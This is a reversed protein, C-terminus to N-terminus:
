ASAPRYTKKRLPFARSEDEVRLPNGSSPKATPSGGTDIYDTLDYFTPKRWPARATARVGVRSAM